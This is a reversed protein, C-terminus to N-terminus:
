FIKDIIEMLYTGDVTDANRKKLEEILQYFYASDVGTLQDELVDYDSLDLKAIDWAIKLYQGATIRWGRTLFKRTRIMACVPYRSQGMYRLDRALIAELAAPPLTLSRTKSEWYCTCHVFDYTSHIVEPDGSFRLVIQVGDSLTIANASLFTPRYKGKGRAKTDNAIKEAAEAARVIESESDVSYLAEDVYASSEEDGPVGEFYNYDVDGSSEGAVGASKVVLKVRDGDREVTMQIGGGNAFRPPPNEKFKDLYYKALKEACDANRLYLDFDHVKEGLLMSVICGGTVVVNEKLESRLTADTISELWNDIKRGITIRIWKAKM